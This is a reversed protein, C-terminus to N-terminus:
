NIVVVEKPRYTRQLIRGARHDRLPLTDGRPVGGCCPRSRSACAAGTTWMQGERVAKGFGSCNARDSASRLVADHPRDAVKDGERQRHRRRRARGRVPHACGRDRDAPGQRGPRRTGGAPSGCLVPTEDASTSSGLAPRAGGRWPRSPQMPAAGRPQRRLPRTSGPLGGISTSSPTPRSVSRRRSTRPKSRSAPLLRVATGWMPPSLSPTCARPM